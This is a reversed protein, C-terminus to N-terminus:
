IRTILLPPKPPRCSLNSAASRARLHIRNCRCRDRQEWEVHDQKGIARQRQPYKFGAIDVHHPAAHATFLMEAYRQDALALLSTARFSEVNSRHRLDDVEM